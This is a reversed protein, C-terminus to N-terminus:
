PYGYMGGKKKFKIDGAPDSQISLGEWGGFPFIMVFFGSM